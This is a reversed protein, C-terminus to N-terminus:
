HTGVVYTKAWYESFYVYKKTSFLAKDLAIIYTNRVTIIASMLLGQLGLDSAAVADIENM